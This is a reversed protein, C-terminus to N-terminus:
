NEKVFKNVYDVMETFRETQQSMKALLLYDERTFQKM